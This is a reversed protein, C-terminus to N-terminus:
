EGLGAARNADDFQRRVDDMDFPREVLEGPGWQSRPQNVFDGGYVHIAGTLRETPNAVAHITRTGLTTVDGTELRAGTTETIGSDVRRFFQNDEVGTYIGIIAWMRHDHPMLRMAPAWAFNVVTLDPTHHLLTLGGTGPTLAAAVEDPAALEREVVERVADRGGVASTVVADLFRDLDFMAKLILGAAPTTPGTAPGGLRAAVM